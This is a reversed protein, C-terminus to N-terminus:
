YRSVAGFKRGRQALCLFCDKFFVIIVGNFQCTDDFATNKLLTKFEASLQHNFNEALIFFKSLYCLPLVM